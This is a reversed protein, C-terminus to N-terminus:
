AERANVNKAEAEVIGIGSPAKEVEAVCALVSLLRITAPLWVLGSEGVGQADSSFVGAPIPRVAEAFIVPPFATIFVGRESPIPVLEPYMKWLRVLGQCIPVYVNVVVIWLEVARVSPRNVLEPTPTPNSFLATELPVPRLRPVSTALEVRM